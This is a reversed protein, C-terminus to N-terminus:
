WNYAVKREAAKRRDLTRKQQRGRSERQCKVGIYTYPNFYHLVTCFHLLSLSIRRFEDKRWCPRLKLRNLSYRCRFNMWSSNIKGVVCGHRWRLLKGFVIHLNFQFGHLRSLDDGRENTRSRRENTRSRREFLRGPALRPPGWHFKIQIVYYNAM